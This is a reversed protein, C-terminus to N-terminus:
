EDEELQKIMEKYGMSFMKLGQPDDKYQEKIDKLMAKFEAIMIKRYEKKFNERFEENEMLKDWYTKM